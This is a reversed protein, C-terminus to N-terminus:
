KKGNIKRDEIKEVNSQLIYELPVNLLNALRTIYWLVDGLELILYDKDEENPKGHRDRVIKKIREVVEGTEGALGLAAYTLGLEDVRPTCMRDVWKSYETLVNSM